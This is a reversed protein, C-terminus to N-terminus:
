EKSIPMVVCTATDSKLVMASKDDILDIVVSSAVDLSSLWDVVCNPDINISVDAGMSEVEVFVTSQGIEQSMGSMIMLLGSVSMKIGRSEDSTTIAAQRVASLFSDRSLTTTSVVGATPLVSRWKPFTGDLMPTILTTDEGDDHSIDWRAGHSAVRMLVSGSGSVRLLMLIVHLPILCNMEVEGGDNDLIEACMRRGDTAVIIINSKTREFFVGGLAYRTSGTECAFCVHNLVRVFHEGIFKGFQVYKTPTAPAPLAADEVTQLIWTSRTCTVILGTGDLRLLVDSAAHLTKLIGLLREASVLCDIPEFKILNVTTSIFVDSSCHLLLKGGVANIRVCEHQPIAANRKAALKVRALADRLAGVQCVIGGSANKESRENVKVKVATAMEFEEM